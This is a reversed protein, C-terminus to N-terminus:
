GSARMWGHLVVDALLLYTRVLLMADMANISLHCSMAHIVHRTHCASLVSQYSHALCVSLCVSPSFHSVDM